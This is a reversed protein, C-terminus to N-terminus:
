SEHGYRLMNCHGEEPTLLGSLFSTVNEGTKPDFIVLQNSKEKFIFKSRNKISLIPNIM